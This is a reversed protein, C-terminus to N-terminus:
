KVDILNGELLIILKQEDSDNFSFVIDSKNYIKLKLNPFVKEFYQDTSLLKLMKIKSLASKTLNQMIKKLYDEGLIDQFVAKTIRYCKSYNEAIINSYRKNAYILGSLGFYNGIIKRYLFNNSKNLNLSKHDTPIYSFSGEFVLFLSDKLQNEELLDGKEFECKLMNVAIDHIQNADFYKFIPHLSLLNIREKLNTNNMKLVIEKFVEGELCYIEIDTLSTVTSSRHNKQILALEGFSDGKTMKKSDGNSYNIELEGEKVIYYFNGADGEKYLLYGKNM